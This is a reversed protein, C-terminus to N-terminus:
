DWTLKKERYHTELLHYPFEEKSGAIKDIYLLDNKRMVFPKEGNSELVFDGKYINLIYKIFLMLDDAWSEYSSTIDVWICYTFTANYDNNAFLINRRRHM